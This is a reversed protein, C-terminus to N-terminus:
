LRPSAAAGEALHAVLKYPRGSCSYAPLRAPPPQPPLQRTFSIIM